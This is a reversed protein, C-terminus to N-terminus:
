VTPPAPAAGSDITAAHQRLRAAVQKLWDEYSMEPLPSYKAGLTHTVFTRMDAEPRPENVDDIENALLRLLEANPEEDRVYGDVLGQWDAAELDWDEHFYVRFLHLLPRSVSNDTM